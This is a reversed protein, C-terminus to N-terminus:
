SGRYDSLNRIVSNDEKDNKIVQQEFAEACVPYGIM